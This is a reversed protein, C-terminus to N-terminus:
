SVLLVSRASHALFYVGCSKSDPDRFVPSGAPKCVLLAEALKQNLVLMDPSKDLFLELKRSDRLDLDLPVHIPHTDDKM